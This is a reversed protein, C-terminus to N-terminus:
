LSESIEDIFELLQNVSVYQEDNDEHLIIDLKDIGNELKRAFKNTTEKEVMALSKTYEKYHKYDALELGSLIVSDEPLIRCKANYLKEANYWAACLGHMCEEGSGCGGCIIKAIEEIKKEKDEIKVEVKSISGNPIIENTADGCAYAKEHNSNGSFVVRDKM